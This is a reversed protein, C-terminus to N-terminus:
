NAFAITLFKLEHSNFIPCFCCVLINKYVNVVHLFYHNLNLQSHLIFRSEYATRVLEAMENVFHSPCKQTGNVLHATNPTLVTGFRLKEALLEQWYVDWRFITALNETQIVVAVFELCVAFIKFQREPARVTPNEVVMVGNVPDHASFAM